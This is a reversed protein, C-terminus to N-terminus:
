KSDRSNPNCYYKISFKGDREVSKLSRDDNCFIKLPEIGYPLLNVKYRDIAESRSLTSSLTPDIYSLTYKEHVWAGNYMSWSFLYRYSVFKSSTPLAIIVLAGFILVMLGPLSKPLISKVSPSNM